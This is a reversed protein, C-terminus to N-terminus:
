RSSERTLSFPSGVLGEITAIAIHFNQLAEQERLVAQLVSGRVDLLELLTFRGQLYGSQITDAASRSNPIISTRLLKLEGLAGNLADYARGAISVLVLKNIAREAGIKALTEEAAM